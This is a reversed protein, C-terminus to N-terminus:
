DADEHELESLERFEVILSAIEDERVADLIDDPVTNAARLM